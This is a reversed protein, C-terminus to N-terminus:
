FDGLGLANKLCEDVKHIESASLKCVPEWYPMCDVVTVQECLVISPKLARNRVITHTPQHPHKRLNSTLPVVIVTPSYKNGVNNQVVLWPRFGEQVHTCSKNNNITAFFVQGRKM